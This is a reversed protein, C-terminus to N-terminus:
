ISKIIRIKPRRIKTSDGEIKTFPTIKHPEINIEPKIIKSIKKRSKRKAIPESKDSPENNFFGISNNNPTPPNKLLFEIYSKPVIVSTHDNLEVIRM